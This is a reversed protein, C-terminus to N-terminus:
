GITFRAGTSLGFRGAELTIGQIALELGVLGPLGHFVVPVTLQGAGDLPLLPLLAFPAALGGTLDGVGQVAVGKPDLSLFFTGDAFPAGSVTMSFVSDNAVLGDVVLSALPSSRIAYFVEDPGVFTSLRLTGDGAVGPQLGGGGEVVSLSGAFGFGSMWGDEIGDSVGDDDADAVLRAITGGNGTALLVTGDATSTLGGAGGFGDAFVVTEAADLADGDHNLDRLSVVRGTGAFFDSDAVLLTEGAWVFDGAYALGNAYESVTGGVTRTVVGQLVAGITSGSMYLEDTGPRFTLDYPVAQLMSSLVPPQAPHPVDEGADLADGDGDLDRLVRLRIVGPLSYSDGVVFEGTVPSQAMGAISGFGTAWLTPPSDPQIALLTESGFGGGRVLQTGDALTIAISPKPPVTEVNFGSPKVIDTALAVPCVLAALAATRVVHM